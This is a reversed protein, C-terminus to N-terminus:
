CSRKSEKEKRLSEADKEQQQKKVQLQQQLELNHRVGWRRLKRQYGVLTLNGRADPRSLAPARGTAGGGWQRAPLHASAFALLAAQEYKAPDLSHRDGHRDPTAAAFGVWTDRAARDHRQWQKILCVLQLQRQGRLRQVSRETQPPLNQLQEKLREERARYRQAKGPHSPRPARQPAGRLLLLGRKGRLRRPTVLAPPGPPSGARLAGDSKGAAFSGAPRPPAVVIVAPPYEFNLM